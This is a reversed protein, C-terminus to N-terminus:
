AANRYVKSNFINENDNVEKNDFGFEILQEKNM